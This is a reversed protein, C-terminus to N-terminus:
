HTIFHSFHSDLIVSHLSIVQSKLITTENQNRPVLYTIFYDGINQWMTVNNIHM